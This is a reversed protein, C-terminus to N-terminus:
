PFSKKLAVKLIQIPPNYDPRVLYHNEKKFHRTIQSYSLIHVDDIGECRNVMCKYSALLNSTAFIILYGQQLIYIKKM